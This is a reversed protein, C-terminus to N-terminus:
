RTPNVLSAARSKEEDEKRIHESYMDRVLLRNPGFKAYLAQLSRQPKLGTETLPQSKRNIQESKAFIM